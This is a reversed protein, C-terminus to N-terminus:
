IAGYHPVLVTDDEGIIIQDNKVDQIFSDWKARCQTAEQLNYTESDRKLYALSLIGDVLSLHYDEDVEPSVTAIDEIAVNILPLRAVELNLTDIKRLLTASVGSEDTMTGTVALSTAAATVVTFVVNNNTTGSVSIKSGAPFINSGGVGNLFGNGATRTILGGSKTFTIDSTGTLTYLVNQYTTSFYPFFRIKGPEYNPIIYKPLGWTSRWGSKGFYKAAKVNLEGGISSLYAANIEVILKSISLTPIGPYIDYTCVAATSADYLCRTKRALEHESENYYVLLETDSWLYNDKADKVVDDLRLRALDLVENVFM